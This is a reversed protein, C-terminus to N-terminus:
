FCHLCRSGFKFGLTQSVPPLPPKPASL